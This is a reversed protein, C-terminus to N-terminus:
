QKPSGSPATMPSATGGGTGPGNPMASSGSMGAAGGILQSLTATDFEGTQRLNKQKQFAALAARTRPGAIGDIPGRYLRDKKLTQQAEKITDPSIRMVAGASAGATSTGSMAGTTARTAADANAQAKDPAKHQEASGTIAHGAQSLDEGAGAVTNCGALLGIAPVLFFMRRM